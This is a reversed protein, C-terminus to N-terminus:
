EEVLIVCTNQDFKAMGSKIPIKRSWDLIIDGKRLRGILPAHYDLLEYEGQDGPLFLSKVMGEYVVHKPNLITVKM